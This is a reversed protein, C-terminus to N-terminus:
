NTRYIYYIEDEYDVEDESGDWKNLFHGRGDTMAADEVLEDIDDIMTLLRESGAEYKEQISKVISEMDDPEEVFGVQAYVYDMASDAEEMIEEYKEDYEADTIENNELLEDLENTQEMIKSREEICEEIDSKINEMHSVLFWTNFYCLDQEIQEKLASDVEDDTGVIYEADDTSFAEMGHEEYFSYNDENIDSPAVDLFKALAKHHNSYNNSVFTVPPSSRVLQAKTTAGTNKFDKYAQVEEETLFIGIDRYLAVVKKAGIFDYHAISQWSEFRLNDTDYIGIGNLKQATEKGVGEVEEIKM